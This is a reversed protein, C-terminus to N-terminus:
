IYSAVAYGGVSYGFLAPAPQPMSVVGFRSHDFNFLLVQQLLPVIPISAGHICYGRKTAFLLKSSRWLCLDGANLNFHLPDFGNSSVSHNRQSEFGPGM